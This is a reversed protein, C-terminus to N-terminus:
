FDVVEAVSLSADAFGADISGEGPAEGPLYYHARFGKTGEVPAVRELFLLGRLNDRFLKRSIKDKKREAFEALSRLADQASDAELSGLIGTGTSAARIVPEVVAPGQLGDLAILDPSQGLCVRLTDTLEVSGKPQQRQLVLGTTNEFLFERSRSLLFVLSGRTEARMRILSAIVRSKGASPGGAVLIVGRELHQLDAAFRPPEPLKAFLDPVRHLLHAVIMKKAGEGSVQLRAPAAQGVEVLLEVLHETRLQDQLSRDLAKKVFREISEPDVRPGDLNTVGGGKKLKPKLGPILFLSDGTQPTLRKLWTEVSSGRPAIRGGGKIEPMVREAIQAFVERIQDMHRDQLNRSMTGARKRRRSGKQAEDIQRAVEFLLNETSVTVNREPAAKEFDFEFTGEKWLFVQLAAQLGQLFKDDMVYVVQGDQFYIYGVRNGSRVTLLGSKRSMMMTQAIDVLGFQGLDGTFVSRGHRNPVPLEPTEIAARKRRRALRSRM